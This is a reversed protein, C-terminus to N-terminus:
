IGDVNTGVIMLVDYKSAPDLDDQVVIDLYKDKLDEKFIDKYSIKDKKFKLLTNERGTIDADGIDYVTYGLEELIVKTKGALGAIGAGNQILIHLDKKELLPEAKSVDEPEDKQPTDDVVSQVGAVDAVETTDAVIDPQAFKNLRIGGYVVAGLLLLVSSIAGAYMLATNSKVATPLPLLSLVNTSSVLMNDWSDMM